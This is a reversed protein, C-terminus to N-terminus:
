SRAMWESPRRRGSRLEEFLRLSNLTVCMEANKETDDNVAM